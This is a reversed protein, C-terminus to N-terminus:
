KYTKMHFGSGMEGPTNLEDLYDYYQGIWAPNVDERYNANSQVIHWAERVRAHLQTRRASPPMQQVSQAVRMVKNAFARLVPKNRLAYDINM